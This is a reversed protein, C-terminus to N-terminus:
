TTRVWARCLPAAEGQNHRLEFGLGGPPDDLAWTALELEDGLVAQQHYVIVVQRARRDAVGEQEGYAGARSALVRTDEVYVLYNAHNVHRLLDLESARVSFRRTWAGDPVTDFPLTAALFVGDDEVVVLERISDPVAKPRGEPDLYVVIVTGRAVLEMDEERHFEHHFTLSTRGVGGIWLSGRLGVGHGLDQLVELSQAKVVFSCGDAFLLSLRSLHEDDMSEWRLHEMYRLLVAPPVLAASDLEYGRTRIMRELKAM